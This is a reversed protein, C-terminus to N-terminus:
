PSAPGLLRTVFLGVDIVSPQADFKELWDRLADALLAPTPYRRDPRRALSRLVIADLSVPADSVKSPAEVEATHIAQATELLTRGAFPKLGTLMWYLLVGLSFVDSCPTVPSGDHREPALNGLLSPGALPHEMAESREIRVRGLENVWVNRASLPLEPHFRPGSGMQEAAIALIRVVLEAPLWVEREIMARVLGVLHTSGDMRAVEFVSLPGPLELRQVLWARKQPASMGLWATNVTLLALQNGLNIRQNDRPHELREVVAHTRLIEDALAHSDVHLPYDRAAAIAWNNARLAQLAYESCICACWM